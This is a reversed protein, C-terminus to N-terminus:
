RVQRTNESEEPGIVFPTLAERNKMAKHFGDTPGSSSIADVEMMTAKQKKGVHGLAAVEELMTEGIISSRGGSFWSEATSPYRKSGITPTKASEGRQLVLKGARRSMVEEGSNEEVTKVPFQFVIECSNEPPLLACAVPRRRLLMSDVHNRFEGHMGSALFSSCKRGQIERGIGVARSGMPGQTSTSSKSFSKPSSNKPKYKRNPIGTAQDHSHVGCVGIRPSRGEWM